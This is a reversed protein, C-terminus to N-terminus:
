EMSSGEPTLSECVIWSSTFSLIRTMMCRLWTPGQSGETVIWSVGRYRYSALTGGQMDRGIGRRGRPKADKTVWDMHPRRTVGGAAVGCVVRWVVTCLLLPTEGPPSAHGEPQTGVSLIFPRTPKPNRTEPKLQDGVSWIFPGRM